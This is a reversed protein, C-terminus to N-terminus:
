RRVKDQGACCSTNSDVKEVPFAYSNDFYGAHVAMGDDADSFGLEFAEFRQLGLKQSLFDNKRFDSVLPGDEKIGNEVGSCCSPPM